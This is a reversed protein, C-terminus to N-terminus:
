KRIFKKGNQILIGKANKSVRQGALNYVPANEDFESNDVTVGDIGTAEEVSIPLVQASAFYFSNYVATLNYSKGDNAYDKVANDNGYLQVVSRGDTVFYDEEGEEGEATINVDYFKVLDCKHQGSLIDQLTATVPQAQEDSATITLLSADTFDNDKVEPIAGNYITFDVKVTGSVVANETFPLETSYFMIAKDGERVFVNPRKYRNDIYVVKGNNITLNVYDKGSTLEHLGAITMDTFEVKIFTATAVESQNGNMAAIAKVTASNDLTFTLPSAGSASSTTPEDGNITYYITSGEPGTITVDTTGEFTADGEITPVAVYTDPAEEYTVVISKVGQRSGDPTFTVSNASGTWVGGDYTGDVAFKRDGSIEVTTVVYEDPVSVTFSSSASSSSYLRLENGSSTHWWRTDGNLTLTVIGEKCITPDANYESTSGSLLPMGYAEDGTFDFTETTQAFTTGCFLAMLCVLTLRLIQKM